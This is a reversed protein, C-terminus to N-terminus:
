LTIGGRVGNGGKAATTARYADRYADRAARGATVTRAAHTMAAAQEADAGAPM